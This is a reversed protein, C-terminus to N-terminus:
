ITYTYILSMCNFCVLPVGMKWLKNVINDARDLYFLEMELYPLAFLFCWFEIKNTKMASLQRVEQSSTRQNLTLCM